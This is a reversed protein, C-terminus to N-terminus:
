VSAEYRMFSIREIVTQEGLTEQIHKNIVGSFEPDYMSATEDWWVKGGPTRLISSLFDMWPDLREKSINGSLFHQQMNSILHVLQAFIYNLVVKENSDLSDFDSLGKRFLDVNQPNLIFVEREFTRVDALITDMTAARTANTSHRIQRALYFLTALTAVAALLEGISGLDQISM